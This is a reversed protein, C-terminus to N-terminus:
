TKGRSGWSVVRRWVREMDGSGSWWGVFALSCGAGLTALYGGGLTALYGGGLTAVGGGGLTAGGRCRRQAVATGVVACRLGSVFRVREWVFGGADRVRDWRVAVGRAARPKAATTSCTWDFRRKRRRRERRMARTSFSTWWAIATISLSVPLSM